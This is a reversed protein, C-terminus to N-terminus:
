GKRRKRHEETKHRPIYHEPDLRHDPCSEIESYPVVRYKM